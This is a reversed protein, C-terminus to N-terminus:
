QCKWPDEGGVGTRNINYCFNFSKATISRIRANVSTGRSSEPAYKTQKTNSPLNKFVVVETKHIDGNDKIYDIEVEVEDMVFEGANSLTLDLGSIGGFAGTQYDGRELRVFEAWRRRMESKKWDLQHDEFEKQSVSSQLSSLAQQSQMNNYILFGVAVITILIVGFWLKSKKRKPLSIDESAAPLGQKRFEPPKIALLPRLEDIQDATTWAALGEHWISAQPALNRSSLEELSFPGKESNGDHIYYQRM